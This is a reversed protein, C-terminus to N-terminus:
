VVEGRSRALEEALDALKKVADIPAMAKAKAATEALMEPASFM